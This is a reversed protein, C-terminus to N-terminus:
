PGFLGDSFASWDGGQPHYVSLLSINPNNWVGFPRDPPPPLKHGLKLRQARWKALPVLIWDALAEKGKCPSAYHCPSSVFLPTTELDMVMQLIAHQTSWPLKAWKGPGNLLKAGHKHEMWIRMKRWLRWNPGPVESLKQQLHYCFDCCHLKFRIPPSVHYLHGEFCGASKSTPKTSWLFQRGPSRFKLHM